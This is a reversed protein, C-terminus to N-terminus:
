RLRLFNWDRNWSSTILFGLIQRAWLKYLMENSKRSCTFRSAAYYLRCIVGSNHQHQLALVYGM